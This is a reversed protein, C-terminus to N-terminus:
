HQGEADRKPVVAVEAELDEVPLEVIDGAVRLYAFWCSAGPKVKEKLFDAVPAGPATEVTAVLVTLDGSARDPPLRVVEGEVVDKWQKMLLPEHAPNVVVRGGGEQDVEVLWSLGLRRSMNVGVITGTRHAKGRKPQLFWSVRDGAKYNSRDPNM